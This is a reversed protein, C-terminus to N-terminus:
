QYKISIITTAEPRVGWGSTIRQEYVTTIGGDPIPTPIKVPTAFDTYMLNCANLAPSLDSGFINTNIGPMAPPKIEPVTLIIADTGGAGKGILTDDYYWEFTDGNATAVNAISEAVTSTGAGPRQYSTLQVIKAQAMNLFIRQPSIVKVKIGMGKASQFMRSKVNVIQGLFFNFLEGNDYTALTQNNNSDPPLNVQDVGPTNLLGEGNQPNFGYLLATRMTQFIGQYGALDLASVASVKWVGARAVDHHDYISRTRILYTPTNIYSGQVVASPLENGPSQGAKADTRLDIQDIYVAMDVPSIKVRPRGDDALANFAGSAQTYTIIKEPETFSPSAKVTTPFLIPM